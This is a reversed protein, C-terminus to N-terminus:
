SGNSSAHRAELLKVFLVAVLAAVTGLMAMLAGERASRRIAKWEIRRGTRRGGRWTGEAEQHQNRNLLYDKGFGFIFLAIVCVFFSWLLGDGVRSAFFYPLLPLLGGLVYGVGVSVGVIIPSCLRTDEEDEESGGRKSAAIVSGTLGPQQKIHGLVQERLHPPLELPALYDEVVAQEGEHEADSSDSPAKEPDGEADSEEEEETNKDRQSAAIEGKAALYGGVGMSIMGACIEALGAYIVTETKGLSSLGATLAFPVTLGDAFGLTFDALFRTMTPLIFRQQQQKQKQQSSRNHHRPKPHPLLGVEIEDMEAMVPSQQGTATSQSSSSVPSYMPISTKPDFEDIALRSAAPPRPIRFLTEISM